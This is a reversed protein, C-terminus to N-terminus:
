PPRYSQSPVGHVGDHFTHEDSLSEIRVVQRCVTSIRQSDAITCCDTPRDNLDAPQDASGDNQRGTPRDTPRNRRSTLRETSQDALRDTLRHHWDTPRDNPRGTQRDTPRDALRDTPRDSLFYNNKKGCGLLRKFTFCELKQHLVHSIRLAYYKM